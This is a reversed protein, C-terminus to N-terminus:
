TLENLYRTASEGIEKAFFDFVNVESTIQMIYELAKVCKNRRLRKLAVRAKEKKDAEFPNSNLGEMVLRLLQQCEPTTRPPNSRSM